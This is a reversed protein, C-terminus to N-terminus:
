ETKLGIDKYLAIHKDIGIPAITPTGMAISSINAHYRMCISFYAKRYIDTIYEATTIDGNLLPAISVRTTILVGKIKRLVDYIAEIDSLIHPVFVIYYEKNSTLLLLIYNALEEVFDVYSKEADTGWVEDNRDKTINLAIMKKNEPIEIHEYYNASTFFGGDPVKLIKKMLENTCIGKLIDYSGDNRVSIICRQKRACNELFTRFKVINKENGDIIDVGVANFVIPINIKDFLENQMNFTTGTLSYDWEIRFFDGGGVVFLDGDNVMDIFNQDFAAENWSRYYNRIEIQKITIDSTVYKRINNYFGIHNIMDGVNGNFSALHIIKM